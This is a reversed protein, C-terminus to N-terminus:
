LFCLVCKMNKRQFFELMLYVIYRSPLLHHMLSRNLISFCDNATVLICLDISNMAEIM